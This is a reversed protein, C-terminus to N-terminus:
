TKVTEAPARVRLVRVVAVTLGPNSKSEVAAIGERARERIEEDPDNVAQRLQPLTIPGCGLLDESAKERVKFSDDGLLRILGAIKDREPQTITRKRFYDLLAPAEAAIKAAKLVKEDEPNIKEAPPAAHLAPVALVLSVLLSLRRSM